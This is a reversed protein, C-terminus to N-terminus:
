AANAGTFRPTIGTRRPPRPPIGAELWSVLLELGKVNEPANLVPRASNGEFVRGGFANQLAAHYYYDSYWYALGFRGAQKDTLKKAMGVLETTTAPRRGSLKKNSSLTIVKFTGAM